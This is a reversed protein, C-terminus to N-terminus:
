ALLIDKEGSEGDEFLPVWQGKTLVFTMEKRCVTCKRIEASTIGLAKAEATPSPHYISEYEHRHKM